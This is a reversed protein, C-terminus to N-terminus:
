QNMKQKFTFTALLATLITYLIIIGLHILIQSYDGALIKQSIDVAHSFPLILGIVEFAGGVLELPFWVGGLFSVVQIFISGVGGVQQDTFVSGLLLGVNVFLFAILLLFPISAFIHITIQLGMIIGVIYLFIIQFVSLLLLPLMYGIIYNHARLPSVFLRTLFSSGRDKAVLVGSFMSMFPFSFIIIAPVLNKVEFTENLDLNKNLSVLLVLVIAPLFLMFFISLFDNLLEKFNRRALIMTKM